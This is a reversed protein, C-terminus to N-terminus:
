GSVNSEKSKLRLLLRCRRGRLLLDLLDRGVVVRRWIGRLLLVVLQLATGAQAPPCVSEVM